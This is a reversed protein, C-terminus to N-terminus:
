VQSILVVSCASRAIEHSQPLEKELTKGKKHGIVDNEHKTQLTAWFCRWTWMWRVCHAHYPNLLPGRHFFFVGGRFEPYSKWIFFANAGHM